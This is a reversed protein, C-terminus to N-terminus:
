ATQLLVIGSLVLATGVVKIVSAREGLLLSGLAVAALVELGIVVIYTVAMERNRMALTQAVSGTIVLLFLAVTPAVVTLGESLKMMLGAIAFCGAAFLTALTFM